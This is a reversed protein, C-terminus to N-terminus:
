FPSKMKHQPVKVQKNLDSLDVLTHKGGGGRGRKFKVERRVQGGTAKGKRIGTQRQDWTGKGGEDRYQASRRHFKLRVM